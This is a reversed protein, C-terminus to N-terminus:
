ISLLLDLIFNMIWIIPSGEFFWTYLFSAFLVISFPFTNITTIYPYHAYKEKIIKKIQNINNISTWPIDLPKIYNKYFSSDIVDRQSIDNIHIINQEMEIFCKKYLYIFIRIALYLVFWFTVIHYIDQVFTDTNKLYDIYVLPILSIWIIINFITDIQISKYRSKQQIKKKCHDIFYRFMIVITLTILVLIYKLDTVGEIFVSWYSFLLEKIIKFLLFLLLLYNLPNLILLIGDAKSRNYKKFFRQQSIKIDKYILHKISPGYRHIIFSKWIFFIILLFTWILINWVFSIYWLYYIHVWLVIFYKSDWAWWIKFIALLFGFIFYWLVYYIITHDILWKFFLIILSAVTFFIIARNPIIKNKIDSLVIFINIWFLIFYMWIIIYELM